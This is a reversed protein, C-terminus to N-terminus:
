AVKLTIEKESSAEGGENNDYAIIKLKQETTSLVDYYSIWKSCLGDDSEEINVFNQTLTSDVWKVEQIFNDAGYACAQVAVLIKDDKSFTSTTVLGM